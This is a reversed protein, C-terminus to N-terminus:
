VTCMTAILTSPHTRLKKNSIITRIVFLLLVISVIVILFMEYRALMKNFSTEDNNALISKCVSKEEKEDGSAQFIRL